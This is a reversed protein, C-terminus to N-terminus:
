TSEGNSEHQPDIRTLDVQFHTALREVDKSRFVRKNHVRLAPEAVLGTSLAYTIRYPKVHLMRSVDKLSLGAQM